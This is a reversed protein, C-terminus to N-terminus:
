RYNDFTRHDNGNRYGFMRECGESYLHIYRCMLGYGYRNNACAIHDMFLYTRWYWRNGFGNSNRQLCRRLNCKYTNGICEAAAPKYIYRNSHESLRECGSSNSYINVCM